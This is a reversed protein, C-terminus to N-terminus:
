DQQNEREEALVNDVREDSRILEDMAEEFEKKRGKGEVWLMMVERLWTDRNDLASLEEEGPLRYTIHDVAQGDPPKIFAEGCSYYVIGRPSKFPKNHVSVWRTPLRGKKKSPMAIANVVSKGKSKPSSM